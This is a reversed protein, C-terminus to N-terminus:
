VDFFLKLFLISYIVKIIPINNSAVAYFLSNWLNVSQLNVDSGHEVLIKATTENRAFHLAKFVTILM